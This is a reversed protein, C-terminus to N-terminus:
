NRTYIKVEFEDNYITETLTFEKDNIQPAFTDGEYLGKVVSVVLKNAFKLSFDYIQKGGIIILEESSNKYSNLFNEFDNIIILDPHKLDIVRSTVVYNTRNPLPKLKLSEWTNRGMLVKKNKTYNVFFQMESKINWPLRNNLGIVGKKDQAWILTIM